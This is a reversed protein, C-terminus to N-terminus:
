IDIVAAILDDDAEGSEEDWRAKDWLEIRNLAGVIAVERDLHAYERLKSPILIRGQTDPEVLAAQSTFARVANHRAQGSRVKAQLSDAVEQFGTPTWLGLCNEYKALIGQGALANRFQSPLVVRGKGDLAHEFTGVFM